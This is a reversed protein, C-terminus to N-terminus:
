SLAYNYVYKNIHKCKKEFIIIVNSLKKDWRDINVLDQM